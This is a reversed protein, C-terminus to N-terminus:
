EAAIWQMAAATDVNRFVKVPCPMAVGFLRTAGAIWDIDTVVAVREWAGLHAVGLKMDDWMAGASFGTFAPGLQYLVRVRRHAALTSEIAPMLIGEYDKATVQGSAIVGVIHDPLNTMLELM